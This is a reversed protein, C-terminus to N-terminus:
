KKAQAKAKKYFDQIPSFPGYKHQSPPFSDAWPGTPNDVPKSDLKPWDRGVDFGPRPQSLVFAAVDWAEVDSLAPKQYDAQGYPMNMKVLGAFNGIRFLGAGSTFSHPGWLPPYEYGNGAALPKGQGDAGHCSKCKNLFLARGADPDAARSLYKMKFIGTGNPATGKPVADGLWHLYALIARMEHGNTDLATGNLSREICDNVRKTISEMKGSRARTKPYTSAVAGYNNGYPRTGAEYHCNQCNMGNTMNAVRGKPGLYYSTNEILDHGYRTLTDEPKIQYKNWGYWLDEDRKKAFFPHDQCAQLLLLLSVTLAMRRLTIHSLSNISVM